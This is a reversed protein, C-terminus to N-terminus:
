ALDASNSCSLMSTSNASLHFHMDKENLEIFCQSYGRTHARRIGWPISEWCRGGIHARWVGMTHGGFVEGFHTGEQCGM